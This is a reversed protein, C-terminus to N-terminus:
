NVDTKVKNRWYNLISLLTDEWSHRPKWDTLNKLKDANGVAFAIDTKRLRQPDSEITITSKSLCLLDDLVSAISRAQGSAINFIEGAAIDQAQQIVAMYASVVDYVSLFDRQATLNGAKVVPIQLGHEIRAIQQAFASVVFEPSQKAGVHNFPRLRIIHLPTTDAFQGALLDAAAKSSAYPNLPQLLTQEDIIQGSQFSKGYIDSSAINLFLANEVHDQLAQLLYLTGLVNVQWTKEPFQFSTPIHSIAALHIVVDPLIKAIANNVQQVDSIDIRQWTISLDSVIVAKSNNHQWATIRINKYQQQLASLLYGAVFGSGGTILIHM